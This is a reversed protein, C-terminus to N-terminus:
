RWCKVERYGARKHERFHFGEEFFIIEPRKLRRVSHLKKKSAKPLQAAVYPPLVNREVSMVQLVILCTTNGEPYNEPM